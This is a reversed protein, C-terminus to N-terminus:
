WEHAISRQVWCNGSIDKGIQKYGECYWKGEFLYEMAVTVEEGNKLIKHIETFSKFFKDNIISKNNAYVISYRKRDNM